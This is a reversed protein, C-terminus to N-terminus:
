SPEAKTRRSPSRQRATVRSSSSRASIPEISGQTSEVAIGIQHDVAGGVGRDVGCLGVGIRGSCDVGHRNSGQGLRGGAALDPEDGEGGVVDEITFLWGAIHLAVLGIGQVDVPAVLSSPSCNASSAWGLARITLVDHNSEAVCRLKRVM